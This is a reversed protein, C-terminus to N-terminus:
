GQLKLNRELVKAGRWTFARNPFKAQVQKRTLGTVDEKGLSHILDERFPAIETLPVRQNYPCCRQCSDCGWILPHKEVLAAEEPSFDGSKQTLHSLCRELQFGETGLAGGPCAKECAGCSICDQVPQVAPFPYDWDTLITGLFVYSGYDPVLLLGQKGRVGLGALLALEVEPLPSNDASPHFHCHPYEQRLRQCLTELAQTVVLHYDAGRAYLSLNGPFDGAYYPFAAVFVGTPQPCLPQIKELQFDGVPVAGWAVAGMQAFADSLTTLM